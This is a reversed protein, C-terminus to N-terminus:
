GRQSQFGRGRGRRYPPWQNEDEKNVDDGRGRGRGKMISSAGLTRERKNEEVERQLSGMFQDITMFDIDKSKEIAVVIYDFSPPLSRLIKEIVRTDSLIEGNIKMENSITLVHTFYDSITESEEM